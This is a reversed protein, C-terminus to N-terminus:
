SQPSRKDGAIIIHSTGYALPFILMPLDRRPPVNGNPVNRESVPSSKLHETAGAFKGSSRGLFDHEM